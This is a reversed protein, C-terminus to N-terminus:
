ERLYLPSIGLDASTGVAQYKGAIRLHEIRPYNPPRLPKRASAVVALAIGTMCCPWVVILPVWVGAQAIIAVITRSTGYPREFVVGFAIVCFALVIVSFVALPLFYRKVAIVEPRALRGAM